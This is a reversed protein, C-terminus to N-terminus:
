AALFKDVALQKPADTQGGYEAHGWAGYKTIPDVDNFLVILDVEKTLRALYDGYAAAMAPSRNISVLQDLTTKANVVFHQGSEYTVHRITPSVERIAATTNKAWTIAQEVGAKILAETPPQNQDPLIYPASAVADFTDVAGPYRLVTRTVEPNAAQTGIVCVLDDPRDAFAAKWVKMVEIARRSYNLLGAYYRNADLKLAVGENIALNFVPFQGNWVENSLEVHVKRGAPLNDHAFKAAGAIYTADDNWSHNFWVDANALKALAFQTEIAGGPNDLSLPNPRTAWTRAPSANTDNWDMFRLVSYKGCSEVIERSFQHDTANAPDADVCMMDRIPDKPDVGWVSIWRNRVQADQSPMTFTLSHDGQVVNTAGDVRVTGTGKWTLIVKTDRVWTGTPGAFLRKYSKSWDLPYGKADLQDPGLVKWDVNWEGGQLINRFVQRSSYWSLGSLNMGLPKKAPPALFAMLADRAENVLALANQILTNDTM